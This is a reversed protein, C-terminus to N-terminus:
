FHPLPPTEKTLDTNLDKRTRNARIQGNNIERRQKLKEKMFFIPCFRKSILYSRYGLNYVSSKVLGFAVGGWDGLESGGGVARGEHWKSGLFM